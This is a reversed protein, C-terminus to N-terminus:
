PKTSEGRGALSKRFYKQTKACEFGLDEYFRHAGARVVNCRVCLVPFGRARAWLEAEAVLRRGIGRSRLSEDTVLGLIEARPGSELAIGAFVHAFGRAGAGPLEAVFVAHDPHPLIQRLRAAIEDPTSPYGLQTALTALAEADEFRGPRIRIENTTAAVTM